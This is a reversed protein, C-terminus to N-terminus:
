PKLEARQISCRGDENVLVESYVLICCGLEDVKLIATAGDDCALDVQCLMGAKITVNRVRANILNLDSNM